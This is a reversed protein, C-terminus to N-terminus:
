TDSGLLGRLATVRWTTAIREPVRGVLVELLEQKTALIEPSIGLSDACDKVATQLERLQRKDPPEDDRLREGRERNAPEDAAALASLIEGGARDALRPPLDPVCRLADLSRPRNRAIAILQEDSLIWRRPRDRSQARRERWEVLMLAACRGDIDLRRLGRLRAWIQEPPTIPAQGTLLACDQELWDLRGLEALKAALASWLAHLSRVDDRAYAIAAEPLPRRSWDTRTYEKALEVGLEKVLLEQLGIQPPYGVLGAAVQTDILRGPLRQTHQFIVELDQRSSHVIWTSGERLLQDYLSPLDITALCDVCAISDTTAIQVLCLQPYYTKERVFETDLALLPASAIMSLYDRLTADDDIYLQQM